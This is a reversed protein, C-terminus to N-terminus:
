SRFQHEKFNFLFMKPIRIILKNNFCKSCKINSFHALVLFSLFLINSHNTAKYVVIPLLLIKKNKLNNRKQYFYKQNM